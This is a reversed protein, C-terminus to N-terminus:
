LPPSRAAPAVAAADPLYIIFEASPNSTWREIEASFSEALAAREAAVLKPDCVRRDFVGLERSFDPADSPAVEIIFGNYHSVIDAEGTATATSSVIVYCRVSSDLM